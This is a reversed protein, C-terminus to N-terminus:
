LKRGLVSALARLEEMLQSFEAITITQLADSLAQLPDFHVEILLGDAGSAIAAKSIAPILDKRGAAHSPDVIVPLHSTKKLLPVASIDLTFRTSDEFTRIGRECFMVENNGQNLIYEAALLWEKVTSSLGRKLLVPKRVKGVEKLLDYNHMNRAGIQLIDAYESILGVNRPDTVETVVALGTEERAEKLIKLGEMGLGQFSYPSTRPKFAGGRLAKAGAKKVSRAIKLTSERNEVSCPGAMVVIEKGGIATGTSLTIITDEGKHERDVLRYPKLIPIVKEVGPYLSLPMDRLPTEDGIVGMITRFEGRSVWVKLGFSEIDKKIREQNEESAEPKLVIIM